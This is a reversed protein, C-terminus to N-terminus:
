FGSIKSNSSKSLSIQIRLLTKDISVMQRTASSLPVLPAANYARQEQIRSSVVLRLTNNDFGIKITSSLYLIVRHASNKDILIKYCTSEDGM